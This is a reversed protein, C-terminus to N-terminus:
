GILSEIKDEMCPCQPLIDVLSCLKGGSEGTQSCGNGVREEGTERKRLCQQSSAAGTRPDLVSSMLWAVRYRRDPGEGAASKEPRGHEQRMSTCCEFAGAERQVATM